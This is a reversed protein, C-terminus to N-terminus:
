LLSNVLGPLTQNVFINCGIETLHISDWFFFKSDDLCTPSLRNCLFVVELLGTGCCGRDIVDLGYQQPNNIVSILPNYFDVFAIKSQPLSSGLLPLQEKLMSNYLQSAENEKQVCKRLVGGFLTREAPFCGVPPASFVGIRRAGLEYLQQVFSLTLNVLMRDYTLVDDQLSRAPLSIILDNTSVCVIFVSNNMINMVAEEGVMTTLNGIYQKFLNLQDLPSIALSINNTLPDYGSGGSAFSVGTLLDNVQLSPDLYAPLYEKVGFFDAINKGNSFRGTPKGGMFDKGYPLFNAKGLTTIYNNNGTDLFSDGFALVAPVSSSKPLNITGQGRCLCVTAYVCFLIVNVVPLLM